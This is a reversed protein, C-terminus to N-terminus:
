QHDYNKQAPKGTTASFAVAGDYLNAPVNVIPAGQFYNGDLTIDEYGATAASLALLSSFYIRPM